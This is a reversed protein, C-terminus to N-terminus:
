KAELPLAFTLFDVGVLVLILDSAEEGKVVGFFTGAWRLISIAALV